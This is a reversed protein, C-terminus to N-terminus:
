KYRHTHQRRGRKARCPQGASTHRNRQVSIAIQCLRIWNRGSQSETLHGLHAFSAPPLPSPNSHIGTLLKEWVPTRISSPLTHTTPNPYTNARVKGGGGSVSGPLNEQSRLPTRQMLPTSVNSRGQLSTGSVDAEAQPIGSLNLSASSETIRKLGASESGLHSQPPPPPPSSSSSSLLSSTQVALRPDQQPQIQLASPAQYTSSVSSM